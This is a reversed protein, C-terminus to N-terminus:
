ESPLRFIPNKLLDFVTRAWEVTLEDSEVVECVRDFVSYVKNDFGASTVILRSMICM